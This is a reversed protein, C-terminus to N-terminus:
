NAFRVTVAEGLGYSMVPRRAYERTGDQKTTWGDCGEVTIATRTVYVGGDRAPSVHRLRITAGEGARNVISWPCGFALSSYRKAFTGREMTRGDRVIAYSIPRTTPM